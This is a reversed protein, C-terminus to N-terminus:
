QQAPATSSTAPAAAADSAVPQSSVTGNGGGGGAGGCLLLATVSFGLLDSLKPHQQAQVSLTSLVKALRATVSESSM